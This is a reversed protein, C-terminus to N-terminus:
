DFAAGWISNAVIESGSKAMGRLIASGIRITHYLAQNSANSSGFWREHWHIEPKEQIKLIRLAALSKQASMSM